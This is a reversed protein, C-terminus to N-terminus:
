IKWATSTSKEIRRIKTDTDVLERVQTMEPDTEIPQYNEENHTM